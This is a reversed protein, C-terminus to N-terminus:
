AAVRLPEAQQLVIRAFVDPWGVAAIAVKDGMPVGMDDWWNCATQFTVGFLAATVERSPQTARIFRGWREPFALRLARPEFPNAWPRSPAAHSVPRPSSHILTLAPRAAPAPRSM